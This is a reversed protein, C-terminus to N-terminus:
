VHMHCVGIACADATALLLEHAATVRAQMAENSATKTWLEIRDKGNRVCCGIGCIEEGHEFQEGICALVCHLWWQDLVRKPEIGQM